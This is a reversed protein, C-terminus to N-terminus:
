SLVQFGGFVAGPAQASLWLHLAQAASKEGWKRHRRRLRTFDRAAAEVLTARSTDEVGGRGETLHYSLAVDARGGWLRDHQLPNTTFAEPNEFGEILRAVQHVLGKCLWQLDPQCYTEELLRMMPVVEDTCLGDEKLRAFIRQLHASENGESQALFPEM